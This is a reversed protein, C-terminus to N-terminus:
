QGARSAMQERKDKGPAGFKFDELIFNYGYVDEGDKQYTNNEIRYDVILQDGKLANKAIAEAKARFATFQISVLRERVEGTEKDRGAYENTILTFRAVARDGSGNLVVAKALNGVFVNKQM